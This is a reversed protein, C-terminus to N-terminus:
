EQQNIQYCSFPVQHADESFILYANVNYKENKMLGRLSALRETTNTSVLSMSSSFPRTLLLIRQTLPKLLTKTVGSFM